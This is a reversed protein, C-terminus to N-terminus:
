GGNELVQVLDSGNLLPSESKIKKSTRYKKKDFFIKKINIM